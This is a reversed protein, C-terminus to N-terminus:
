DDERGVGSFIRKLPFIWVVGAVIYILLELWFSQRAAIDILSVVVVIYAPLGVLLIFISLRRKTKHSLAL